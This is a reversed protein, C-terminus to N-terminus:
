PLITTRCRAFIPLIYVNSIMQISIAHFRYIDMSAMCSRPENSFHFPNFHVPSFFYFMEKPVLDFKEDISLAAFKLFSAQLVSGM